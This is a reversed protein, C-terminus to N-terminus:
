IAIYAWDTKENTDFRGRKVEHSKCHTIDIPLFAERDFPQCIYCSKMKININLQKTKITLQQYGWGFRM